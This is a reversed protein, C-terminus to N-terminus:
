GALSSTTPRWGGPELVIAYALLFALTSAGGEDSLVSLLLCLASLWMWVVSKGTRWRVHAHFCLLGFVLAIFFGRNAVYAVPGFTHWDLLWLCAALGAM